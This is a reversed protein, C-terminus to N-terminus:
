SSKYVEESHDFFGFKPNTTEYNTTRDHCLFTSIHAFFSFKSELFQILIPHTSLFKSCM